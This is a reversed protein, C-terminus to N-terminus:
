NLQLGGSRLCEHYNLRTQQADQRGARAVRQTAAGLPGYMQSIPDGSEDQIKVPSIKLSRPPGQLGLHGPGGIPGTRQM